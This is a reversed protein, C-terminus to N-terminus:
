EGGVTENIKIQIYGSNPFTEISYDPYKVKFEGYMTGVRDTEGPDFVFAVRGQKADLILAERKILPPGKKFAIRGIYDSQTPGMIFTVEAGTLDIPNGKPSKLYASIATRTDGAKLNIIM